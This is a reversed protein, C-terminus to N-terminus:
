ALLELLAVLTGLHLAQDLVITFYFGKDEWYQFKKAGDEIFLKKSAEDAHEYEPFKNQVDKLILKYAYLKYARWIYWDIAGHVIINLFSILLAMWPDMVLSLGIAFSAFLIGLHQALVKPESSKRKGMDRSQLLSDAIVHILFSYLILGTM